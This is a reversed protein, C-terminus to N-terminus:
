EYPIRCQGFNEGPRVDIQINYEGGQYVVSSARGTSLYKGESLIHRLNEAEDVDDCIYHEIVEGAYHWCGGEESGDFVQWLEFVTVFIAQVERGDIWRTFENTTPEYVFGHILDHTEIFEDTLDDWTGGNTYWKAFEDSADNWLSGPRRYGEITHEFGPFNPHTCRWVGLECITEDHALAM